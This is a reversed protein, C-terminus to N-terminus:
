RLLSVRERRWRTWCKATGPSLARALSVLLVCIARFILDYSPPFFSDSVIFRVDIHYISFLYWTHYVSNRNSIIGPISTRSIVFRYRFEIHWTHRIGVNDDKRGAPLSPPRAAGTKMEQPTAPCGGVYIHPSAARGLALSRCWGIRSICLPAHYARTGEETPAFFFAAVKGRPGRKTPM